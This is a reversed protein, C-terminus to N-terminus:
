AQKSPSLWMRCKITLGYGILLNWTEASFESQLTNAPKLGQNKTIRWEIYLSCSVESAKGAVAISVGGRTHRGDHETPDKEYSLNRAETRQIPRTGTLSAM